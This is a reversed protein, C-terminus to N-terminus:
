ERLHAVTREEGPTSFPSSIENKSPGCSRSMFTPFLRGTAVYFSRAAAFDLWCDPTYGHFMAKPHYLESFHQLRVLADSFLRASGLLQEKLTM